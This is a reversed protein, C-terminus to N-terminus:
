AGRGYAYHAFPVRGNAALFAPFEALGGDRQVALAGAASILAEKAPDVEGPLLPVHLMALGLAFSVQANPATGFDKELLASASDFEGGRILLLAYHYVSVREIEEDGGYGLKNARELHSLAEGYEKMEFESLGLLSWAVGMQPAAAVVKMLAPKAVKYQDSEYALTGLKWWGETWGPQAALQGQLDRIAAESEGAASQVASGTSGQPADTQGILPISLATGFVVGFMLWRVAAISVTSM